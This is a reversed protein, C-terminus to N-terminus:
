EVLTFHLFYVGFNQSVDATQLFLPLLHAVVHIQQPLFLHLTVRHLGQLFLDAVGHVHETLFAFLLELDPAVVVHEFYGLGFLFAFQSVEYTDAVVLSSLVHDFVLELCGFLKHARLGVEGVFHGVLLGFGSGGGAVDAFYVGLVGGSVVSRLAVGVAATCEAVVSAVDAVQDLFRAVDDASYIEGVLFSQVHIGFYVLQLVLIFRLPLLLFFADLLHALLLALPLFFVELDVVLVRLLDVEAILLQCFRFLINEVSVFVDKSQQLFEALTLSVVHFFELVDLAFVDHQFVLQVAHDLVSDVLRIYEGFV